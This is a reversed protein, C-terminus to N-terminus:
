TPGSFNGIDRADRRDFYGSSWYNIVRAHYWVRLSLPSETTKTRSWTTHPLPQTALALAEHVRLRFSSDSALPSWHHWDRQPWMLRGRHEFGGGSTPCRECAMGLRRIRANSDAAVCCEAPSSIAWDVGPLRKASRPSNAGPLRIRGRDRNRARPRGPRTRSPTRRYTATTGVHGKPRCVLAGVRNSPCSGWSRRRSPLRVTSLAASLNTAACPTDRCTVAPLPNVPQM